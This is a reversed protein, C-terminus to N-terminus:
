PGLLYHLLSQVGGQDSNSTPPSSKPSASSSDGHLVHHLIGGVTKRVGGVTTHVTHGVGDLAKHVTEGVGNRATQPLANGHHPAAPRPSAAAKPQKREGNPHHTRTSNQNAKAVQPNGLGPVFRGLLGRVTQPTVAPEGRFVHSLGDRFQVARSWNKIVGILNDVSHDLTDTTPVLHQAFTALLEATPTARRLVPTAGTALHTLTPAVKTATHLTPEAAHQFPSLEALTKHLDPATATLERAAPGLPVTTRQLQGLFRQLTALTGPAKALTARLAQRRGAVTTATQGVTDILQTLRRRKTTVQGVLSDTHGVLSALTHNDSVVADLLQTASQVTHPLQGILLSIDSKRGGVAQGAEKILVGLRARTTPGLVALVQDLDTSPKVRATPIFSGSPAPHKEVDGKDIELQKQGLLNVSAIFASASRGVPGKGSDLKADIIVKKGRPGLSVDVTGVTVGGVTVLSGDRLGDADAVRMRVHYADGGGGSLAVVLVVAIVVVALAGGVIRARTSM